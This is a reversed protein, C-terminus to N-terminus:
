HTQEERLVKGKLLERVSVKIQNPESDFDSITIEQIRGDKLEVELENASKAKVSKIVSENEYPEIVSLYRADKGKSRVAMTKRRSSEDGLPFDGGLKAKFGVADIGSLDITITGSETDNQPMGPTSNVMLEGAIKVPGNYYDLGKAPPMLINQYKAPLSSIFVESGDKLILRANGWFITNNRPRSTGTTLVLQKKGTIDVEINKDGLIWAGTSGDVLVDNDAAVRYTVKKQVGFEEPVTGIMIENQAPWANFVDIKLPGDESNPMRGGSNDCGQGWCMEFKARSTGTTKYWDCDTILQATGLPDTNMQNDHRLFEKQGATLEKVGKMQFLWDFTHDEGAKLYDALIVYDDMMVMLRRQLVPETYGTIVQRAPPNEPIPLSRDAMWSTDMVTDNRMGRYLMGGYPPDSWRANTEVATAQMMDGTYFLTRFSEKPEQMKQDVVVMNKTMSTQVLFKYLYTDYGYWIMEPNFFSRGYRMMSILSTRDFHGHHGGHSGYHLAAQIQERQERGKTQSRLQVIGMNDAYASEKIKESTVDPLDTVGYLLSRRNDRNIIAAYEPDRYISYALELRDGGVRTETADNVAFMVGRYDLFPIMADWMDKIGLSNKQLPGWKMFDMGYLGPRKREPILSFFPSTGIPMQQDKFNIGWPELAIAVETFESAVWLNYGVACEYWWGDSMVGHTFQQYIGTPGYLLQEVLHRDQLALACYLASTVEAVDWNSIAGFDTGLQITKIHLRFTNEILEIDEKTLLGSDYIMDYGRAVNQFFGGEKVFNQDNARFTTPYGNKLNSIRRLFLVCKEAYAKNGTLQYAIACNEMDGAVKENYLHRGMQTNVGSIQTAVEPVDWSRAREEYQFLGEKAWNYKAIKDRVAQWKESTFVINPFPVEVASIFEMTVTASGDGNPIAKLVQKERVGHPLKAPVSVEIKCKKVENPSLELVSPTISVEMQEWGYTGFILQVGQESGTTNGVEVEYQIKGGAAVSKGQVPSELSLIEGKTVYVNRLSLTANDPSKALIELEKVMQLTGWKQGESVDFLDWPIFVTKWGKGIIQVKATSIPNVGRADQETVKFSVTLEASSEAKLFIEFTLGSYISWDSAYGYYERFGKNSRNGEPYIYSIINGSKFSAENKSVSSIGSWDSFDPKGVQVKLQAQVMSGIMLAVIVLLNKM